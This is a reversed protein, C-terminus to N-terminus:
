QALAALATAEDPHQIFASELKTMKLLKKLQEPVSCLVALGGANRTKSVVSLLAGLGISDLYKMDALNFLVKKNGAELHSNMLEIINGKIHEGLVNGELYIVLVGNKTESKM